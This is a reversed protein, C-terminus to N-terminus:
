GASKKPKQHIAKENEDGEPPGAGVEHGEELKAAKEMWKKSPSIRFGPREQIESMFRFSMESGDTFTLAWYGGMDDVWELSEVTKGKAEASLRQKQEATMQKHVRGAVQVIKRNLKAVDEPNFM